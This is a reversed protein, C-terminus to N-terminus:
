PRLRIPLARQRHFLSLYPEADLLRHLGSPRASAYFTVPLRGSPNSKGILTNAIAKGGAEGPYWAELIANAHQQAWNVALASGNLLVVVMPKGTAAVQQLMEEQPAPLKIDTRDGGSFGEVHIPMEEGEIEPSLGMMAIVLDSRKAADVARQLLISAPPKWYLSIGGGKSSSARTMEVEISQPQSDAFALTFGLPGRARRTADLGPQPTTTPAGINFTAVQKGGVLVTVHDSPDCTRCRELHVSIDYSGPTPPVVQGTWRVAFGGTANGPLPSVSDWDFNIAPDIRSIVPKGTFANEAFYEAKLGEEKSDPSPRFLTRPVPSEIGEAYPSGQEYVIHAEPLAAKLADVPMQPDRAMGNYNGELSALAAANPGIVAVTKYKAAKLPLIGDNKLLVLAKETAELALAQHAQSHVDSFPISTYPVLNPPDFLGLKMRALFLRRLSVDIDAESITGQKVADDLARYTGGCNTDTGDARRSETVDVGLVIIGSISGDPERRPQYVFDLYRAELAPSGSRALQIPTSRGIHPTGTRYVADLLALFGQGEAEPVAERLTKGLVPRQGVLDQYPPNIMEFVHNPGRLLAFFAPAQQFLDALREREQQLQAKAVVTGTTETCVVLTGCVHGAADRVPSYGYTWYVDELRGNRYIPVLHDEHWSAEGRTMVADIQPGIISWIEPWCDRGRQGLARPHKDERISPRYADNYFQILDEGWWLFMPHRSALLTNVTILLAEPWQEIPGVPTRAWDFARTRDAM